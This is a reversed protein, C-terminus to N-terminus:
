GSRSWTWCGGSLSKTIITPMPRDTDATDKCAPERFIFCSVDDELFEVFRRARDRMLDDALVPGAEQTSMDAMKLTASQTYPSPPRSHLPLPLSRSESLPFLQSTSTPSADLRTQVLRTPSLSSTAKGVSRLNPVVGNWTPDGRLNGSGELLDAQSQRSIMGQEYLVFLSLVYCYWRDCYVVERSWM